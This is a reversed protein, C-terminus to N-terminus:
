WCTLEARCDPSARRRVTPCFASLRAVDQDRVDFGEARLRDLAADMSRTNFLVLADLVLGLAGTQDEM